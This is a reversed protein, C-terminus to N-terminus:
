MAMACVLRLQPGNVGLPEAAGLKQDGSTVFRPASQLGTRNGGNQTAVSRPHSPFQVRRLPRPTVSPTNRPSPLRLTTKAWTQNGKPSEHWICSANLLRTVNTTAKKTTSFRAFFAFHLLTHRHISTSSTKIHYNGIKTPSSFATHLSYAPCM